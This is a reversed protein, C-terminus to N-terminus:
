RRVVLTRLRVSIIAGVATGAVAGSMVGGHLWLGLGALGGGGASVLLLLARAPVPVPVTVELREDEALLARCGILRRAYLGTLGAGVLSGCLIWASCTSPNAALFAASAALLGGALLGISGGTLFGAGAAFAALPLVPPDADKALETGFVRHYLPGAGVRVPALWGLLGGTLAGVLAGTSAAVLMGAVLSGLLEPVAGGHIASGLAGALGTTLVLLGRGAPREPCVNRGLLATLYACALGGAVAEPFGRGLLEGAVLGLMTSAFLAAAQGAACRLPLRVLVVLAGALGVLGGAAMGPVSSPGSWGILLGALLGGAGGLLARLGTQMVGLLSVAM